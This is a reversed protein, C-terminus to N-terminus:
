RSQDERRNGQPPAPRDATAITWSVRVTDPARTLKGRRSSIPSKRRISSRIPSPLPQLFGFLHEIAPSIIVTPVSTLLTRIELPFTTRGSTFCSSKSSGSPSRFEMSITEKVGCAKARALFPPGAPDDVVCCRGSVDPPCSCCCVSFREALNSSMRTQHRPSFPM